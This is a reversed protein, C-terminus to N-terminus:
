KFGETVGRNLIALGSGLMRYEKGAQQEGSCKKGDICSIIQKHIKTFISWFSHLSQPDTVKTKNAQVGEAAPLLAQRMPCQDCTNLTRPGSGPRTFM